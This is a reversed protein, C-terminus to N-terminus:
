GTGASPTDRVADARPGPPKPPADPLPEIMVVDGTQMVDAIRRPAPGLNDGQLPRAWSVDSMPIVGLHQTPTVGRQGLGNLWGVRAENETTSLVVALRTSM